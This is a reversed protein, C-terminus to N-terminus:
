KRGYRTFGLSLLHQVSKSEVGQETEVKAVGNKRMCLKVVHGLLWFLRKRKDNCHESNTTISIREQIESTIGEKIHNIIELM